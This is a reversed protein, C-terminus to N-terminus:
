CGACLLLRAPPSVHPLDVRTFSGWRRIETWCSTANILLLPAGEDLLAVAAAQLLKMFFFGLSLCVPQSRHTWIILTDSSYKKFM